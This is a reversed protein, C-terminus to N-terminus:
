KGKPHLKGDAGRVYEVVDATSSSPVTTGKKPAPNGGGIRSAYGQVWGEAHEIRSALDEPSQATGFDRMMDKVFGEPMSAGFHAMGLATAYLQLDQNLGAYAPDNVGGKNVWFDNWRGEGPGIKDALDAVEKQIVPIQPLITQAVQGRSLVSSTPKPPIVGGGEATSLSPGNGGKANIASVPTYSNTQPNVWGLTNGQADNVPLQTRLLMSNSRAVAPSNGLRTIRGTLPSAGWVGDEGLDVTKAGLSKLVNSVEQQYRIPAIDQDALDPRGIMQAIQPMVHVQGNLSAEIQRTHADRLKTNSAANAAAAEATMRTTGEPLGMAKDGLAYKDQETKAGTDAVQGKTDANQQNIGLMGRRWERENQIQAMQLPIKEQEIVAQKQAPTGVALAGATGVHGLFDTIKSGLNAQPSSNPDEFGTAGGAVRALKALFSPRQDEKKTAEIGAARTDPSSAASELNATSGPTTAPASALPLPPPVPAAPDATAPALVSPLGPSPQTASDTLQDLLSRKAQDNAM